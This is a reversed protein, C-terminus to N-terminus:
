GNSVTVQKVLVFTCISVASASRLPQEVPELDRLIRQHQQLRDPVRRRFLARAYNMAKRVSVPACAKSTCFYSYQCTAQLACLCLEHSQLRQSTRLNAQKVPKVLVFTRISVSAQAALCLKHSQAGQSTRLKSAKSTCFYLYQCARTAQYPAESGRRLALNSVSSLKSAKSTCFYL